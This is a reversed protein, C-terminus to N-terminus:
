IVREARMKEASDYPLSLVIALPFVWTAVMQLAHRPEALQVGPDCLVNCGRLSLALTDARRIGHSLGQIPGSYMCGDEGVTDVVECNIEENRETIRTINDRCLAFQSVAGTVCLAQAVVFVVRVPRLILRPRTM